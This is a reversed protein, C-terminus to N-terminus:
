DEQIVIATENTVAETLGSDASVVVSIQVTCRKGHPTHQRRLDTEDEGLTVIPHKDYVYFLIKGDEMCKTIAVVAYQDAQPNWRVHWVTGQGEATLAEAHRPCAVDFLMSALFGLMVLLWARERM